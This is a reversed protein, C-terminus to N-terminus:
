RLAGSGAPRHGPNARANAALLQSYGHLSTLPTKLEHAAVSLFVERLPGAEEARERARRQHEGKTRETIDRMIVSLGVPRGHDDRIAFATVPV